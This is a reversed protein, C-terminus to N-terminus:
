GPLGGGVKLMDAAGSRVKSMCDSASSGAVCSFSIGNGNAKSAASRCDAVLDEPFV